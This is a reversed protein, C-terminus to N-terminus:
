NLGLSKLREYDENVFVTFDLTVTIDSAAAFLKQFVTNKDQPQQKDQCDAPKPEIKKREGM